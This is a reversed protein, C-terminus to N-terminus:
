PELRLAPLNLCFTSGRGLESEVTLRGEMLGALRRSVSLGLGTGDSTGRGGEGQSYEDFIRDLDAAAIGTGDDAVTIVIWGEDRVTGLRIRDPTTPASSRTRSCTSCSRNFASRTPPSPSTTEDGVPDAGEAIREIGVDEECQRGDGDDIGLDAIGDAREKRICL